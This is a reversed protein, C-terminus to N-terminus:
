LCMTKVSIHDKFLLHCTEVTLQCLCLTTLKYSAVLDSQRGGERGGEWSTCCSASVEGTWVLNFVCLASLIPFVVNFHLNISDGSCNSGYSLSLNGGGMLKGITGAVYISRMRCVALDDLLNCGGWSFQTTIVMLYLRVGLAALSGINM